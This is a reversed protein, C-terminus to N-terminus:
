WAADAFDAPAFGAGGAYGDNGEGGIRHLTRIPLAALRAHVVVEGLRKIAVSQALDDLLM